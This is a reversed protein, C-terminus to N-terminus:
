ERADARGRSALDEDAHREAEERSLGAELGKQIHQQRDFDRLRQLESKSKKGLDKPSGTHGM